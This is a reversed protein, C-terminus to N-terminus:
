LIFLFDQFVSYDLITLLMTVGHKLPGKTHIKTYFILNIRYVSMALM